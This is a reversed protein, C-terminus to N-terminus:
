SAILSVLAVALVSLLVFGMGLWFGEMIAQGKALYEGHLQL